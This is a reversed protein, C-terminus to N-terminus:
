HNELATQIVQLLQIVQIAQIVTNGGISFRSTKTLRRGNGFHGRSLSDPNTKYSLQTRPILRSSKRRVCARQGTTSWNGSTLIISCSAYLGKSINKIAQLIM